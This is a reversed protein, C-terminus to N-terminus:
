ISMICLKIAQSIQCQPTLIPFRVAANVFPFFIGLLFAGNLAGHMVGLASTTANYIPGLNEALFALGICL